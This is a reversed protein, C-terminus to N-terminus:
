EKIIDEVTSMLVEIVVEEWEDEISELDDTNVDNRLVRRRYRQEEYKDINEREFDEFDAMMQRRKTLIEKSVKSKLLRDDKEFEKTYTKLNRKIEKIADPSLLTPPRPRWMTQSLGEVEIKRL